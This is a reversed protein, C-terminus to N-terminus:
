DSHTTFLTSTPQTESNGRNIWHGLFRRLRVWTRHVWDQTPVSPQAHSLNPRFIMLLLLPLYWLIYIGGQDAYWFQISILVAASLAIVHALNKPAPWWLTILVFMMCPIFVAMRYAPHVGAWLGPNKDTVTQWPQWISATWSSRLSEPMQGYVCILAIIIGLCFLISVLFSSLFRTLGRKWYFSLWIPLLLLPFFVTGVPVGLFFGSLIPKRYTLIAWVVWAMTWAHDWRGLGVGPLMLYTYPLLLYFTAAAVGIHVDEFRRWGILILGIAVSLHCALALGREVWLKLEEDDNLDTQTRVLDTVPKSVVDSVPSAQNGEEPHPHNPHRAAVAILSVFLTCALWLLGALNLNPPLAPRRVLVLDVLCRIFFYGSAGLLALNGWWRMKGPSEIQLLLGPMLIFLTMLDWNRVSLLRSFKFFLAIALLWSFYFWTTANPLHIDLFISAFVIM